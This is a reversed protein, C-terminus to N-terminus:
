GHEIGDLARLQQKVSRNTQRLKHVEPIKSRVTDLGSVVGMMMCDLMFNGCTIIDKQVSSLTQTVRQEIGDVEVLVDNLDADM